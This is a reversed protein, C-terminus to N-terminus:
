VEKYMIERDDVGLVYTIATLKAYALAGPNSEARSIDQQTVKKKPDYKEVVETAMEALQSQSLKKGKRIRKLRSSSRAKSMIEGEYSQKQKVEDTSNPHMCSFDTYLRQTDSAVISKVLEIVRLKLWDKADALIRNINM